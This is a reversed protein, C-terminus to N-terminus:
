WDDEDDDEADWLSMIDLEGELDDNDSKAGSESATISAAISSTLKEVKEREAKERAKRKAAKEMERIREAEKEEQYQLEEVRNRFRGSWPFNIQELAEQRQDTMTSPLSSSKISTDDISSSEKMQVRRNYHSRQNIMWIRLPQHQHDSPSIYYDLLPQSEFVDETRNHQALQLQPPLQEAVSQGLLLQRIEDQSRFTSLNRPDQLEEILKNYNNEIVGNIDSDLSLLHNAVGYVKTWELMEYWRKDHNKWVFGIEELLKIRDEDLHTFRPRRRRKVKQRLFRANRRRGITIEEFNEDDDLDKKGSSDQTLLRRRYLSRINSVWAGLAMNDEYKEPVSAHGYRQKFAQLEKIRTQFQRETLSTFDFGANLLQRRREETLYGKYVISKHEAQKRLANQQRLNAAWVGLAPNPHYQTPISGHGHKAHFERLQTLREQFLEESRRHRLSVTTRPQEDIYQTTGSGASLM